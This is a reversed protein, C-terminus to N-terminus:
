TVTFSAPCATPSSGDTGECWAYYTGPATPTAVYAGWLDTNVLTGAVWSIPLTTASLSLGFQVPATSPAVHVNVGISGVGPSYSTAPSLNWVISTVAGGASTTSTTVPASPIGSGAANLANVQFSYATAPMLGTVVTSLGAMGTVFVSWTSTGALAFQVTYGSPTGGTGPPSWSLTVGNATIATAAVGTVQGPVSLSAPTSLTLITSAPGAGAANSATVSVDYQTSSALGSITSATAVGTQPASTWMTTGTPRYQISYSAAAGGTTSALWTLTMSNPTASPSALDVVQGPVSETVAVPGSVIGAFVVNGGSYTTGRLLAMQMPLLVSQGTSTTIGSGFSVHGTSFNLVECCFGSGMNVFAPSLTLPQSCVLVRGNHVTGDLTTSTSLEVVPPKYTPLKGETWDWVAAFSQRLLNSGGQSVWLLDTDGAPLAPAAEDITEGDLLDAYSIAATTGNNSVAVLDAPGLFTAVPLSALNLPGSLVGIGLWDQLTALSLLKPAGGSALVIQDTGSTATAVPFTAHDAGTAVLNGAELGLGTSVM